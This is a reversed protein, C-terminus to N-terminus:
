KTLRLIQNQIGEFAPAVDAATPAYFYKGELQAPNFDPSSRDNAVRKLFDESLEPRTGLNQRIQAGMGITYIRIRYDGNDNRAENAIIEVLNRAANNVNWIQSPYLGPSLAGLNRLGRAVNQPVGNVTLSNSQWPFTTPIGPSRHHTHASGVPMSRQAAPVGAPVTTSNWAISSSSWSPSLTGAQTDALGGISVNNGPAFDGTYM